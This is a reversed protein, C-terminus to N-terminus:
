RQHERSCAYRVAKTSGKKAGLEGTEIDSNNAADFIAVITADDLAARNASVSVPVSTASAVRLTFVAAGVAIVSAVPFVRMWSMDLMELHPHDVPNRRARVIPNREASCRERNRITRGTIRDIM